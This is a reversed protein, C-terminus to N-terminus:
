LEDIIEKLKKIFLNKDTYVSKNQCIARHTKRDTPVLPLHYSIFPINNLKCLSSITGYPITVIYKYHGYINEFPNTEVPIQTEEKCFQGVYNGLYDFDKYRIKIDKGKKLGDLLLMITEQHTEILVKWASLSSLNALWPLQTPCFLIDKKNLKEQKPLKKIVGTYNLKLSPFLSFRFLYGLDIDGMVSGHPLLKINKEGYKEYSTALLISQFYNLEYGLYTNWQHHKKVILNSLPLFWKPFDSLFFRPLILFLIFKFESGKPPLSFNLTNRKKKHIFVLFKYFFKFFKSKCIFVKDLISSFVKYPLIIKLQSNHADELHDIQTFHDQEDDILLENIDTHEYINSFDHDTYDNHLFEKAFFFTFLSSIRKILFGNESSNSLDILIRNDHDSMLKLYYAHLVYDGTLIWWFNSSKNLSHYENMLNKNLEKLRPIESKIKRYNEVNNEHFEFINM